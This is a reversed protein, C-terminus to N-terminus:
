LARFVGLIPHYRWRETADEKGSNVTVEGYRTSVVQLEKQKEEALSLLVERYNIALWSTVGEAMVLPQEEFLHSPKLGGDAQMLCFVPEDDEEEMALFYSEQPTSERFPTRRQLEGCWTVPLRWWHAAIAQASDDNELLASRLRRHELSALENDPQNEIIRPVANIRRWCAEPLLASLDHNSLPYAKSEFGPMCYAVTDGRLARINRNLIALNEHCPVIQRHRQIRGAFQILSRMSSPEIIGWDADFDRGVELVSTGLVVYLHHQCSSELARIGEPRQWVQQPDHRDFASDLRKEIFSRVALPHRAHYVCYHICYNEPAPQAMLAQAVAVLPNINALRIIGFSVTKGDPHATHHSQHLTIMEQWLTQAVAKIVDRVHTSEAEVVALRGLRLCPQEPLRAARRSAFAHHAERFQQEQAIEQPHAGYEDFWACCINVPRGSMGCAEQWAKRGTRYAEFLAETQAPTLTASSLLVRSGLMGAWNVLRCLAHLDNIDFDDPEDLVLDSTLLRLMAPIQRGGRVGETAPMLHDVTTVLVPASVLRNLAPEGSLWKQAVGTSGSGEYHVYHHSAFYAEDSASNNDADSPDDYLERVAASGTVIALSDEDLGLRSQLARGTQLTLTRLGLAVSFRCGEQEDALAYMIRANAFTKGCGTSAMNIGFFGQEVSRERLSTAIEWAKNQWQFQGIQTRERFTKHRGIAPLSRRFSPLSRGMLLAHHAVGINHEDLKQKLESTTRDSNAWADYSRDQWAIRSPKSSYYHDALMLSLRALHITLLNNLAGYQVLSRANRARKGIQRAKERWTDSVLPTGHPFKWAKNFDAPKWNHVGPLHNVANWDANLQTDLWGACYNLSPRSTNSQPLRHHSLILWAVTKAVPTLGDLPSSSMEQTDTILAKRIAKEDAPQLHELQALWQEDTKGKVFAQFLRVSLWEHRYPQCRLKNEKRLTQQFLQGAKGFDHFLGAIAALLAVSEACHWRQEENNLVPLTTRNTPVRGQANFRRLNGVIWLLETQGNKKLWHCAVATNRRASKRLLKRLTNVGELTIATQWAADGTREAFQDIIQCSQIRANKTCRSIILVNM